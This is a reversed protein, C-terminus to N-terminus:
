KMGMIRVSAYSSHDDIVVHMCPFGGVKNASKHKTGTCCDKVGKEKFNQLIKIDVHIMDIPTEHEDCRLPEEDRDEIDKQCSLKAQIIHRSVTRQHRNLKRAIHDGTLKEEKSITIIKEVHDAPMAMPGNHTRSSRDEFGSAGESIYSNISKRVTAPAVNFKEAAAVNTKKNVLVMEIMEKRNAYSLNKEEM